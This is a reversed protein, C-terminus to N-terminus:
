FSNKIKGSTGHGSLKLNAIPIFKRWRRGIIWLEMLGIIWIRIPEPVITFENDWFIRSNTLSSSGVVEFKLVYNTDGGWLNEPVIWPIEGLLNSIDNTVIGVQNTTESLHVTIKTITLNTGDIDDTIKEFDWIINTPSPALLIAGASPFILANTAIQPPNVYEYCGMDVIGYIIRPNGDLDFPMPAFANTGANICPSSARLRLNSNYNVFEPYNSINGTGSPLPLSCSYKINSNYYNSSANPASNSWIISNYISGYSAGGGTNASNEIITCNNITSNYAGGGNNGSNGIILCNNFTSDYAGGGYSGASNEVIICNNVISHRTGGGTYGASNGSVTCNNITGYYAGGGNGASNGSIVCNAIVPMTLSCNVGGGLSSGPNGNTITFGSVVTNHNYLNFCRVSNNGDIITNKPGNVSQITLDKSIDIQSTLFYTGNTVFIKGGDYAVDVADQINTAATERTQYPSVPMPNSIDVYYGNTIVRITISVYIGAPYTQNFATLTVNYEGIEDWFHATQLRNTDATGDDFSWINMSAKGRIDACFTVPVGVYTYVNDTNIAVSLSGSIANAYVEDCGISPPNKWSEGDIDVGSSYSASGAGICPSNTAIYISNVLMPEDSINGTGSAAEPTTCCYNYTGSERNNEGPASNYYVISNNVTSYYTGGADIDASNGNITCNNITGGYTGGGQYDASNGSIACNNVISHSTGGGSTASSNGRIICNNLTGERVAGGYSGASNGSITCNNIVPTTGFCQLAGGYGSGVNGNTITFGSIVTNHNYLNFCRVSNNGDVITNGSGNVSQITLNINVNIQSTLLYTGNTVFIKGGNWSIDVADQINTAATSWTSYPPEPLPNNINVYHVNTIVGITVLNSVGAPYTDNFATLVINYDGTANWSHTTRFSNTEATGDDFTWINQSLKGEIGAYFTVPVGVYTYHSDPNIAVSLSGSIANAYVEDCGISPPTKWAEGDIDVGSTYSSSGAGACPSNTDIHSTGLLMPEDSINGTGSTGDPTTCCYNYTGGDRNVYNPASNYYVISNNVTSYHTGGGRNGASNGIVTCNNITGEYVGGGNGDASNRSITSNNVTCFDVGGGSSASSNGSIDCNNVTAQFIGGAREATNGTITSNNITAHYIGGGYSGATNKTVTSNKVVSEYTGGGHGGASNRSITCNNITGYYFGGGNGASNGSIVCNTIVPTHSFCQVAGGSGSGPKGNTITFGSVVTNHDYLRFCRDSNNGDVITNEPGNVSQITLDKNIDIQQPLIYTGNSVIVFDDGSAADVAAQINTYYNGSPAGATGVYFTDASIEQSSFFLILISISIIGEKTFSLLPIKIKKM